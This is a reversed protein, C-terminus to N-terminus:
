IRDDDRDTRRTTERDRHTYLSPYFKVKERERVVIVEQGKRVEERGERLKADWM